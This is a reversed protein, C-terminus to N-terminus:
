GRNATAKCFSLSSNSIQVERYSGTMLPPMPDLDHSFTSLVCEDTMMDPGASVPEIGPM